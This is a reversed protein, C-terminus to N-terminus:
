IPAVLHVFFGTEGLGNIGYELRLVKDYYTVFDIGVGTGYIWENAIRTSFGEPIMVDWTYAFDFFLNAYLALHIKGFRENKIFPLHKTVPKLIEFKLNNKCLAYNLADVVYLDFARVYDNKYGLGQSLFYPATNCDSKKATINSAWYFRGSIPTYYDATIKGYFIDPSYDFLGLGIKTLELELYHGDLPYNHDDRYDNKFIASLTFYQFRTGDPNAFDANLNPLSDNFVRNDYTMQLYLRNRYGFRYYPMIYAYYSEHAYEDEGKFYSIKDDKTVYAVERDRTFGTSTKLGLRQRRTLYPIDYTISYNQNYGGIITLDLEHKLGWVNKYVLDFGYSLRTIDDAEYWSRLNRDAYALYPIPWLYWRELVNITLRKGNTVDPDDAFEFDVFNFLSTNNLNERSEKIIENGMLDSYKDGLFITDGEHFLLERNITSLKTIKNGQIDIKSIIVYGDDNQQAMLAASCFVLLVALLRRM